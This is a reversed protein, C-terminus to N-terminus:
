KLVRSSRRAHGDILAPLLTVVLLEGVLRLGSLAEIHM